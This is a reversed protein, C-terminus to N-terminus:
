CKRIPTSKSKSCLFARYFTCSYAFTHSLLTTMSFPMCSRRSMYCCFNNWDIIHQMCQRGFHKPPTIKPQFGSFDDFNRGKRALWYVKVLKWSFSAFFILIASEFFPWKEFGCIRSIKKYFNLPSTRPNTSNFSAFSM